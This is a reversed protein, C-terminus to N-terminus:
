RKEFYKCGYEPRITGSVLKCMDPRLFYECIGCRHKEPESSKRYEAETKNLKHGTRGIRDRRRVDALTLAM